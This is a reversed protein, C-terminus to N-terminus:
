WVRLICVAVSQKRSRVCSFWWLTVIHDWTAYAPHRTRQKKWCEAPAWARKQRAVRQSGAGRPLLAWVGANCFRSRKLGTARVGGLRVAVLIVGEVRFSAFAM